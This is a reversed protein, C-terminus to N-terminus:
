FDTFLPLYKHDTNLSGRLFLYLGNNLSPQSGVRCAQDSTHFLGCTKRWQGDENPPDTGEGGCGGLRRGGDGGGSGAYGLFSPASERPQCCARSHQAGPPHLLISPPLRSLPLSWGPRRERGWFLRRRLSCRRVQSNCVDEGTVSRSLHSITM